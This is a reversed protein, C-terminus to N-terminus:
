MRLTRSRVVLSQRCKMGYRLRAPDGVPQCRAAQQRGRSRGAHVRDGARRRVGCNRQREATNADAAAMARLNMRAGRRWGAPDECAVLPRNSVTRTYRSLARSRCSCPFLSSCIPSRNHKAGPRRPARWSRAGKWQTTRNYTTGHSDHTSRPSSSSVPAWAIPPGRKSTSRSPLRCRLARM